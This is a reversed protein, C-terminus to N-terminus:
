DHDFGQYRQELDELARSLHSAVTREDLGLVAAIETNRLGAFFRLTVVEQRRPSLAEIMQRLRLFREKQILIQDPAPTDSRIDPVDDISVAEVQRRRYFQNIENRAIRFIWASFSGAGRYEFRHLATVVKTFSEAVIDEADWERGVRYAVYSFVRPFYHRYLDRFADPDRQADAVLQRELEADLAHLPKIVNRTHQLSM